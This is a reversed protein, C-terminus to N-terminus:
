RTSSEAPPPMPLEPLAETHGEVIAAADVILAAGYALPQEATQALMQKVLGLRATPTADPAVEDAVVAFKRVRAIIEDDRDTM